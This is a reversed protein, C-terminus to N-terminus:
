VDINIEIDYPKLKNKLEKMDHLSLSKLKDLGYTRKLRYYKSIGLSHYPLLDIKKITGLDKVYDVMMQIETISYNFEPIVPIRIVIEKESASIHELNRLILHNDFGTCKKHKESDFHKLDYLFLDIVPLVNQINQPSVFGSTEVATHINNDNCIKFFLKLFKPQLCPEGGTVTVGGGSHRYFIEDRVVEDFLEQPTVPYGVVETEQSNKEKFIIEPLRNQGEPNSCWPCRLDCGKMFVLTRIGPGDNLAHREINFIMGTIEKDNSTKKENAM